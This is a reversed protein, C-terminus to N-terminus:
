YVTSTYLMESEGRWDRAAVVDSWVSGMVVKGAGVMFSEIKTGNKENMSADEKAAPVSSGSHTQSRAQGLSWTHTVSGSLAQVFM